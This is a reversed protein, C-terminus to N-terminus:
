QMQHISSPTAVTARFSQAYASAWGHDIIVRSSSSSRDEHREPHESQFTPLVKKASPKRAERFKVATSLVLAMSHWVKTRLSPVAWVSKTSHWSLLPAIRLSTTSRSVAKLLSVPQSRKGTPPRDLAPLRTGPVRLNRSRELGSSLDKPTSPVGVYCETKTPTVCGPPAAPECIVGAFRTDLRSHPIQLPLM